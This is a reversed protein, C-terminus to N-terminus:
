QAGAKMAELETASPHYKMLGLAHIGVIIAIVFLLVAGQSGYGRDVARNRRYLWIGAILLVVAATLELITGPKV